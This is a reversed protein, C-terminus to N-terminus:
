KWYTKLYELFEEKSLKEVKKPSAIAIYEDDKMKIYACCMRIYTDWKRMQNRLYPSLCEINNLIHKQYWHLETGYLYEAFASPHKRYYQIKKTFEIREKDTM